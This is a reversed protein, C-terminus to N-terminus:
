DKQHGPNKLIGLECDLNRLYRPLSNFLRPGEVLFTKIAKRTGTIPPVALTFGRKSERTSDVTIGCNPILGRVVNWCYLIRYQDQRRENSLFKGRALREWYPLSELGKIRRTYAHLPAEM